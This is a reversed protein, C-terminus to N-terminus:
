TASSELSPPPQLSSTPSLGNASAKKEAANRIGSIRQLELNMWTFTDLDLMAVNERSVPAEYSWASILTALLDISVRIQSGVLEIGEMDGARIPRVEFWSEPEHPPVLRNTNKSDILAM